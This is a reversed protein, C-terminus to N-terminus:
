NRNLTSNKNVPEFNIKPLSQYPTGDVSSANINNGKGGELEVNEITNEIRSSSPNPGFVSPSDSFLSFSPSSM